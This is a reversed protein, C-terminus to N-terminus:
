TRISVCDAWVPVVDGDVLVGAVVEVPMYGDRVGGSAHVARGGGIDIVAVVRM